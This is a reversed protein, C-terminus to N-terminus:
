KKAVPLDFSGVKTMLLSYSNALDIQNDIVIEVMQYEQFELEIYTIFDLVGKKFDANAILLRNVIKDIESIPFKESLKLATEYQNIDNSLLNVLRSELFELAAKESKIKSEASIIKEQNRNILPISLSLGVGNSKTGSSGSATDGNQRTASINVDPMQEIKSYSLESNAKNILMKQEKLSLNNQLAAEILLKKGPYNEDSLWQLSINQPQHDLNLYINIANWTQYIENNFKILDREVLKIRDKTIQSQAKQTPSSLAIKSLYGDVLALRDLRKQTLEIKKKLGQFKYSLSFVDAKVLLSINNKRADFAQYQAEEIDYKNQLKNYFPVNQNISYTDQGGLKEFSISPNSWYKQQGALHKQSKALYEASRINASNKEAIELLDEIRYDKCFANQGFSFFILFALTLRSLKM